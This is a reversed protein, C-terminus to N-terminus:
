VHARGIEVGDRGGNFSAFAKAPDHCSACSTGQPQSLRTDMFLRRGLAVRAPDPAALPRAAPVISAYQPTGGVRGVLAPQARLAGVCGALLALAAAGRRM